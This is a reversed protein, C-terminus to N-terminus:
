QRFLLCKIAALANLPYENIPVNLNWAKTNHISYVITKVRATSVANFALLASTGNNIARIVITISRIELM